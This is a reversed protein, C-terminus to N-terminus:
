GARSAPLILNISRQAATVLFRHFAAMSGGVPKEGGEQEKVLFFGMQAALQSPGGHRVWAAGGPPAWAPVLLCM